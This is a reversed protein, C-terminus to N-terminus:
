WHFRYGVGGTGTVSTGFSCTPVPTETRRPVLVPVGVTLQFDGLSGPYSRLPSRSVATWSWNCTLIHVILYVESFRVTTIEEERSQHYSGFYHSPERSSVWWFVKPYPIYVRCGDLVPPSEGLRVEDKIRSSDGKRVKQIKCGSSRAESESQLNKM